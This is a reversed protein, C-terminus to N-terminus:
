TIPYRNIHFVYFHGLATMRFIYIQMGPDADHYVRQGFGHYRCTKLRQETPITQWGFLHYPSGMCTSEVGRRVDLLCTLCGQHQYAGGPHWESISSRFLSWLRMNVSEPRETSHIFRDFRLRYLWSLSQKLLNSSFLHLFSYSHFETCLPIIFFYIFHVHNYLLISLSSWIILQNKVNTNKLPVCTKGHNMNTGMKNMKLKQLSVLIIDKKVHYFKLYHM